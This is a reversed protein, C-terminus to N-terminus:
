VKIVKNRGSEKAKYLAADADLLMQEVPKGSESSTVGISCTLQTVFPFKYESVTQSFNTALSYANDLSTNPCVIIFEEGGLRASYDTERINSELVEAFKVLVEDGAQHGYTDNVRKFFDLDIVLVSYHVKYRSFLQEERKLISNVSRRNMLGTLDDTNALKEVEKKHTVDECVLTATRDEELSVKCSLWYEEGFSTEGRALFCFPKDIEGMSIVSITDGDPIVAIKDIQCWILEEKSFGTLDTVATTVHTIQGHKNLKVIAVNEDVIQHYSKFENLIGVIKANLREISLEFFNRKETTVDDSLRLARETQSHLPILIFNYVVFTVLFFTIISEMIFLYLLLRESNYVSKDFNVSSVEIYVSGITKNNAIINKEGNITLVGISYQNEKDYVVEDLISDKVKIKKIFSNSLFQDCIVKIKDSHLNWLPAALSAALMNLMQDQNIEMSTEIEYEHSNVAFYWTATIPIAIALFVSLILTLTLRNNTKSNM